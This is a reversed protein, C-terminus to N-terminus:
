RYLIKSRSVYPKRMSFAYSLIFFISEVAVALICRRHKAAAAAAAGAAAVLAAGQFLAPPNAV